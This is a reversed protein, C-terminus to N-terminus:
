LAHMYDSCGIGELNSPAQEEEENVVISHEVMTDQRSLDQCSSHEVFSTENFETEDAVIDPETVM